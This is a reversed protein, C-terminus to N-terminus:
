RCQIQRTPTIIADAKIDYDQAAINEIVQFDYCLAIKCFHNDPYNSLYRDYFGAGYGIRNGEPDFALGPLIMLQRVPNDDELNYRYRKEEEPLPEPVGFSSPQLRELSEIRYFEMRGDEEVRPTYVQKGDQLAQLLIPHTNVESGFSVFCFLRDCDIYEKLSIMKQRIADNLTSRELEPVSNRQAKIRKRIEAKTM